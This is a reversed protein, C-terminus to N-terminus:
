WYPCSGFLGLGVHLLLLNSQNTVVKHITIQDTRTKDNDSPADLSGDKGPLRVANYDEQLYSRSGELQCLFVVEKTM